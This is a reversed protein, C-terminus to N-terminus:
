MELTEVQLVADITKEEKGTQNIGLRKVTVTEPATEVQYLFRVLQEMVIAQIKLEVRSVRYVNDKLVDSSPKMYAIRDKIGTQGAIRDLFSFLTFGKPRRSLLSRHREAELKLQDYRGKLQQIEALAAGQSALARELRHYRELLPNVALEVCLVLALMALVAAVGIKERRNMELAM